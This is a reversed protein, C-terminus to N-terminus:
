TVSKFGGAVSRYRFRSSSKPEAWEAEVASVLLEPILKSYDLWHGDAPNLCLGIIVVGKKELQANGHVLFVDVKKGVSNCNNMRFDM